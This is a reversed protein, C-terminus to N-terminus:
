LSRKEECRRAGESFAWAVAEDPDDTHRIRPDIEWPRLVADSGSAGGRKGAGGVCIVPRDYLLAFAIESLTGYRGPFAILADAMKVLLPNRLHGLGTPIPIDIFRNATEPDDGPLVGVTLGGAKRAGKAAAEMIGSLGGCVLIGGAAAIAGGVREAQRADVLACNGGGSVGILLKRRLDGQRHAARM